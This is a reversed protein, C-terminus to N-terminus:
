SQVTSLSLYLSAGGGGPEVKQKPCWRWPDLPSRPSRVAGEQPQWRWSDLHLVGLVTSQEHVPCWRWPDLPCQPSRVAGEWPTVELLRSPLSRPSDSAGACPTVELPRSSELSQQTRRRPADGGPTNSQPSNVEGEQHTVELLILPPSWPSNVAGERPSVELPIVRLVTSKEKETRWRWSYLLLAGLVTSQEQEPLLKSSESSQQSSQAIDRPCQCCDGLCLSWLCYPLECSVSCQM